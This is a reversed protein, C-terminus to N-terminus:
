KINDSRNETSAYFSLQATEPFGNLQQEEYGYKPRLRDINEEHVVVNGSVEPIPEM